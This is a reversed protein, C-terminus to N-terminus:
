IFYFLIFFLAFNCAWPTRKNLYLQFSWGGTLLLSPHLNSYSKQFILPVRLHPGDESYIFRFVTLILGNAHALVSKHGWLFSTYARGMCLSLSLSFGGQDREPLGTAVSRANPSEYPSRCTHGIQAVCVSNLTLSFFPSPNITKRKNWRCVHIMSIGSECRTHQTDNVIFTNLSPSLM